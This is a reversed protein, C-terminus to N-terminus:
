RSTVRAEAPPLYAAARIRGGAVELRWISGKPWVAEGDLPVGSSALYGVVGGIVDGHSCLVTGPVLHPIRAVVTEPPTGEALWDVAEPTTGLRAALPAVTEICRTFPSSLVAPIEPGEGLADAIAAAQRMGRASLPRHRDDGDWSARSGARAHRILRIM